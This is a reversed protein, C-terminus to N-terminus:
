GPFTYIDVEFVKDARKITLKAQNGTIASVMDRFQPLKVNLTTQGNVAIIFDMRKLKAQEGSSKPALAIVTPYFDNGNNTQMLVSLGWREWEVWKDAYDKNVPFEAMILMFLMQSSLRIDHNNSKAVGGGEWVNKGTKSDFIHVAIIPYFYGITYGPQTMNFSSWYGPNYSQINGVVTQTGVLGSVRSYSTWGPTFWPVTVNSPPVEITKYEQNFNIAAAFDAQKYDEVFSYGASELLNRVVYLLQKETISSTGAGLETGALPIVSFTKYSSFDADPDKEIKILPSPDVPMSSFNNPTTACGVLFLIPIILTLYIRRM